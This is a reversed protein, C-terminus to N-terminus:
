DLPDFNRDPINDGFMQLPQLAADIYEEQKM